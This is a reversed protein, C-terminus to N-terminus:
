IKASLKNPFYRECIMLPFLVFILVSGFVLSANHVMGCIFFILLSMAYFSSLYKSTSLKNKAISKFIQILMKVFLIIVVIGGIWGGYIFANFIFNHAPMDDNISIFALPGGFVNEEIFAIANQWMHYRTDGEFNGMDSMRGLNENGSILAGISNSYILLLILVFGLIIIRFFPKRVSNWIIFGSALVMCYFAARQQTTFCGVLGVAFAIAYLVRAWGKGKKRLVWFLSLVSTAAIFMANTFAFDFIGMSVSHGLMSSDKSYRMLKDSMSESITSTSFVRAFGWGIPNNFYQLITIVSTFFMIGVLLKSVGELKKEDTIYLGTAFYTVICVLHNALVFKIYGFSSFEGNVWFSFAMVLIFAVYWYIYNTPLPSKNKKFYQVVLHVMMISVMYVRISFPGIIYGGFLLVAVIYLYYFLM